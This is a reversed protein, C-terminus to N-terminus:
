RVKTRGDPTIFVTGPALALAEQPSSVKVPSKGPSASTSPTAGTAFGPTAATHLGERYADRKNQASQIMAEKLGQYGGQTFANHFIEVADKINGEAPAAAGTSGSSLKAYETAAERLYLVLEASDKDGGFSLNNKLGVLVRNITNPANPLKAVLPEIQAFDKELKASQANAAALVGSLQGTSRKAGNFDLQGTRVMDALEDPSKEPNNKLLNNALSLRDQQSRGPINVGRLALSALLDGGPGGLQSNGYATQNYPKMGAAKGKPVLIPEGDPGIVKELDSAAEITQKGTIPDEQAIRGDPLTKNILRNPPESAPLGISTAVQNRAFALAKRVNSDTFQSPDVGAQQALAPWAATLEKDSQMYQTPKDSKILYDLTQLKPGLTRQATEYQQALTEKQATAADKNQLVMAARSALQGPIGNVPISGIQDQSLPTLWSPVGKSTPQPQTAPQGQPSVGAALDSTNAARTQDADAGMLGPQSPAQQPQGQQPQQMGGMLQQMFANKQQAAQLALQQQQIQQQTLQGQQYNQQAQQASRGFISGFGGPTNSNALLALGLNTMPSMQTPDNIWPAIPM